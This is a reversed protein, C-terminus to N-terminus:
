RMDKITFARTVGAESHGALAKILHDDVEKNILATIGTHRTSHMTLAPGGTKFGLREILNNFWRGLQGGYKGRTKNYTLGPWLREGEQEKVYEIFGSKILDQHVPVKRRSSINKLTKPNDETGEDNIDFYWVDGYQKVDSTHLQAIEERRLMSLLAVRPIWFHHGSSEETAKLIARVQDDTFAGVSETSKTKTKPLKINLAPNGEIHGQDMCYGILGSLYTMHKSVSQISITPGEYKELDVDKYKMLYKTPLKLLRDRHKIVWTRNIACVVTDGEFHELVKGIGKYDSITSKSWGPDNYAEIMMKITPGAPKVVTKEPQTGARGEIVEGEISVARGEHLDIVAELLRQALRRTSDQDADPALRETIHSVSGYDRLALAEEYESQQEISHELRQQVLELSRVTERSQDDLIKLVSEIHQDVLKDITQKDLPQKKMIDKLISGLKNSIFRAADLNGGISRRISYGLTERHRAPINFRFGFNDRRQELYL